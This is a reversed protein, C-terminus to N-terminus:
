AHFNGSRERSIRKRASNRTAFYRTWGGDNRLVESNRTIYYRSAMWDFKIVYIDGNVLRTATRVPATVNPTTTSIRGTTTATKRTNM